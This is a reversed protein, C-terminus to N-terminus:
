NFLKTLRLRGLSTSPRAAAKRDNKLIELNRQQQSQKIIEAIRQKQIIWTSNYDGFM